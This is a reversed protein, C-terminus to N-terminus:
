LSISGNDHSQKLIDELENKKTEAENIRNNLYEAALNLKNHTKVFVDMTTRAKNIKMNLKEYLVKFDRAAGSFDKMFGVMAGLIEM